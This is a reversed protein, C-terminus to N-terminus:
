ARTFIRKAVLTGERVTRSSGLPDYVVSGEGDGVVFHVWTAAGTKREFRLVELQGDTPRYDADEHSKIWAVGTMLQMVKEAALVTCDTKVLTKDLAELLVPIADIREGTIQEALHVLCLFYCGEEGLLKM